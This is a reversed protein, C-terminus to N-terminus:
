KYCIMKSLFDGNFVSTHDLIIKRHCADCGELVKYNDGAPIRFRGLLHRERCARHDNTGSRPGIPDQTRQAAGERQLGHGDGHQVPFIGGEGLGSEYKFLNPPSGSPCLAIM